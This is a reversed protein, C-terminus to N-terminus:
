QCCSQSLCEGVMLSSYRQLPDFPCKGKGEEQKGELRLQGHAFTQQFCLPLSFLPVSVSSFSLYEEQSQIATASCM